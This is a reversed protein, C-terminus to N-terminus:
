PEEKELLFDARYHAYPFHAPQELRRVRMALPSAMAELEALSWFRGMLSKGWRFKLVYKWRDLRKPYFIKLKEREPVDGLLIRGGANLLAAMQELSARAQATSELYQFSFYLVIHDYPGSLNERLQTADIVQFDLKETERSKALEIQGESIDVGTIHACYPLLLRTLLGNGCCVDLIHDTKQLGLLDAIRKATEELIAEGVEGKGGVRAVQQYPDQELAAKDWHRKWDM